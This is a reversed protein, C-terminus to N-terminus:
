IEIGKIYNNDNLLKMLDAINYNKKLKAYIEVDICQEETKEIKMNIVDINEDSLKKQLYVIADDCDKIKIIIQEAVPLRLWSLKKHLFVQVIIIIITTAGGLFYMGAGVAMGVGATAWIGAATTLGSISQKRVFILGAGLFGVGTVIQSAIRSPDLGIGIDDFGYKSIIMILASALSVIFHTRIGAEKLRNKREYGILAGCVGALFIRILFEAQIFLYSKLKM